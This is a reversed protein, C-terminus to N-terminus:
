EGPHMQRKERGGVGLFIEFFHQPSELSGHFPDYIGSFSENDLIIISGVIEERNSIGGTAM